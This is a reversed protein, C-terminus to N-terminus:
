VEFRQNASKQWTQVCEYVAVYIVVIINDFYPIIYYIRM